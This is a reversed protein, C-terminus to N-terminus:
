NFGGKMYLTFVIAASIALGILLILLFQKAMKMGDKPLTDGIM